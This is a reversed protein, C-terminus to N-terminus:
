NVYVFENLNFLVVALRTLAEAAPLEGLVQTSKEREQPTPARNLALQFARDLQKSRDPGALEIVREAFHKAEVNTFESNLLSLAQTPVTTVSRRSCSENMNAGDFVEVMPLMVSRRQFTYITRRLQENQDSPFWKFFEFGEAVDAPISLFVGPGGTSKQIRGTVQLISDRLAEAELRKWNQRSLLRNAPDKGAKSVEPNESAQRYTNSTVILKHLAKMSWKSEIFQTALWDLLEPHTARDGNLGWDSPTRVIGEGFHHQWIRNAMVRATLPNEASAIWEALALRRGSSGGTYPITAPDSNGTLCQLFGPEVREGKNGLEGGALLYTDAVVPVQPPVVDSVSYATAKYRAMAETKRRSDDRSTEYAEREAATFIPDKDKLAKRFDDAMKDGPGLHKAAIFKNKYDAELKKFQDAAEESGDELERLMQRLRKPDEVPLHPAAREDPRTAAFFAQLRYFDKQPIPDYKHDHCRACGTTLGLFVQSTTTTVDNLFDQRLQTKFNADAEWTGM